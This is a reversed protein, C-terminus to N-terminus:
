KIPLSSVSPTCLWRCMVGLVGGCMVLYCVTLLIDAMCISIYALVCDCLVDNILEGFEDNAYM